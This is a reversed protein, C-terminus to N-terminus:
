DANAAASGGDRGNFVITPNSIPRCTELANLNKPSQGFTTIDLFIDKNTIKGASQRSLVQDYGYNNDIAIATLISDNITFAEAALRARNRVLKSVFEAALHEADASSGGNCAIHLRGGLCYRAFVEYVTKDFVALQEYLLRFRQKAENFAIMNKKITKTTTLM